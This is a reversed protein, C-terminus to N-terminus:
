YVMFGKVSPKYTIKQLFLYTLFPLPPLFLPAAIHIQEGKCLCACVCVCVCVCAWLKLGCYTLKSNATHTIHHNPPNFPPLTCMTRLGAQSCLHSTSSVSIRGWRYVILDSEEEERCKHLHTHFYCTYMHLKNQVCLFHKPVIYLQNHRMCLCM